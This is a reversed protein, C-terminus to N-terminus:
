SFTLFDSERWQADGACTRIFWPYLPPRASNEVYSGSDPCTLAMDWSKVVYPAIAGALGGLLLAGAPAALLGRTVTGAVTLLLLCAGAMWCWFKADTLKGLWRLSGELDLFRLSYVGGPRGKTVPSFAIYHDWHSYLGPEAEIRSHDPENQLPVGNEFFQVQLEPPGYANFARGHIRLKSLDAYYSLGARHTIPPAAADLVVTRERGCFLEIPYAKFFGALLLALVAFGILALRAFKFM